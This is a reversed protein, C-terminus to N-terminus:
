ASWGTLMVVLAMFGFLATVIVSNVLLMWCYGATFPWSPAAGPHAKQVLRSNRYRVERVPLGSADLVPYPWTQFFVDQQVLRSRAIVRGTSDVLLLRGALHDPFWFDRPYVLRLVDALEGPGDGIRLEVREQSRGDSLWVATGADHDVILRCRAIGPGPDPIMLVGALDPIDPRIEVASV